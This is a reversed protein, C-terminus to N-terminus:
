PPHDDRFRLQNTAKWIIEEMEQYQSESVTSAYRLELMPPNRFDIGQEVLLRVCDVLGESIAFHLASEGDSTLSNLDAGSELLLLAIEPGGALAARHLPTLTFSDRANVDAGNDMLIKALKVHGREAAEHLSSRGKHDSANVDAGAAILLTAIQQHGYWAAWQLATGGDFDTFDVDAGATILAKTKSENGTMVAVFLDCETDHSGTDSKMSEQILLRVLGDYRNRAACNLASEFGCHISAKFKLLTKVVAEHGNQVAWLLPTGNYDDVADVNSSSHQLIAEVTQACGLAAAVHLSTFRQPPPIDHKRFLVQIFAERVGESDVFSLLSKRLSADPSVELLHDSVYFCAYQYFCHNRLRKRFIVNNKCRGESFETFSLYTLCANPIELRASNIESLQAMLFEQVTFHALRIILSNEDIAVLGRCVRVIIAPSRRNLPDLQSTGPEIAIAELFEPVTMNDKALVLWALVKRALQAQSKSQADIQELTQIYISGADSPM